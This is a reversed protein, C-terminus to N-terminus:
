IIVDKFSCGTLSLYPIQIKYNVNNESKIKMLETKQLTLRSTYLCYYSQKHFCQLTSSNACVTSHITYM